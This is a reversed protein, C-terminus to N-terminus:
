AQRPTVRNIHGMKRGPRALHKGYLHVATGAEGSLREWEDAEDGLLNTMTADSHRETSGLPWGCVARVHQEFQSVTCGDMTWHGSNHVRPALENVLLRNGLAFMEIGIVGVYGLAAIIKAAIRSAEEAMAASIRAPVTSRRLVHNEHENQTVDYSVLAGDWGRAAIISVETEFPVFGELIAPTKGIDRWALAVGTTADIRTQGKGDYGLRRTKLISPRGILTLAKELSREDDVAAFLAVEIGLSSIFTKEVLRDQAIKLVSASPALVSRRGLFEATEGPVNEFEYTIADVNAAFEALACFDTYSAVTHHASVSFAPSDVEPAYIHCDIGMRAAALALMRALQGGGLIGITSGPPLPRALKM